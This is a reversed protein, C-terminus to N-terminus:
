EPLGVARLDELWTRQYEADMGAIMKRIQGISLDPAKKLAQALLETAEEQRGLKSCIVSLLLPPWFNSKPHRM